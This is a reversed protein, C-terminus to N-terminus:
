GRCVNLPKDIVEDAVALLKEPITLGLARAANFNFVHEFKDSQVVPLDGVKEGRLIWSAYVREGSRPL